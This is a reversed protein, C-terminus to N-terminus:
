YTNDHEIEIKDKTVTGIFKYGGESYEENSTVTGGDSLIATLNFSNEGPSRFAICTKAGSALPGSEVQIIGNTYLRVTELQHSTTNTITVCVKERSCDCQDKDGCGNACILSLSVLAAISIKM